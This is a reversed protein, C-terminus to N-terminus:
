VINFSISIRDEDTQNQEVFHDIHAPFLILHNERPTFTVIPTSYSSSQDNCITSLAYSDNRIFTINGSDSTNTSKIYFVGSVKCRPHNHVRNYGGTPNINVWSDWINPENHIGLASFMEYSREKIEVFLNNIPLNLRDKPHYSNSQWGSVNSYRRGASKEAESYCWEQISYLDEDLDYRGIPTPFIDQIAM